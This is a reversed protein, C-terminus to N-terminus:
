APSQASSAANRGNKVQVIPLSSATSIGGAAAASMPAAAAPLATAAMATAVAALVANRAINPATQRM